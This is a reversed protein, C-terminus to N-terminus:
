NTCHTDSYSISTNINLIHKHQTLKTNITARHFLLRYPVSFKCQTKNSGHSVLLKQSKSFAQCFWLESATCM